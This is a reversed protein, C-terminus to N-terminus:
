DLKSRSECSARSTEMASPVFAAGCPAGFWSGAAAFLTPGRLDGGTPILQRVDDLVNAPDFGANTMVMDIARQAAARRQDVAGFRFNKLGTGNGQNNVYLTRVGGGTDNAFPRLEAMSSHANVALQVAM